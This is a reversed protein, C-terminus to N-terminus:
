AEPKIAAPHVTTVTCRARPCPLALVVKFVYV